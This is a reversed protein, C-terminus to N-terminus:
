VVHLIEPRQGAGEPGPPVAARLGHDEVILNVPYSGVTRWEGASYDQLGGGGPNMLDARRSAREHRFQPRQALTYKHVPRCSYEYQYVGGHEGCCGGRQLEAEVRLM